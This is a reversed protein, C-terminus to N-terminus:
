TIIDKDVWVKKPKMILPIGAAETKPMLPDIAVVDLGKQMEKDKAWRSYNKEKKAGIQIGFGEEREIFWSQVSLFMAIVAIIFFVFTVATYQTIAPIFNLGALEGESVLMGVNAVAICILIFLVAAFILFRVVDKTEARFKLKM